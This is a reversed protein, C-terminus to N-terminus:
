NKLWTSWFIWLLAILSECFISIKLAWSTYEKWCITITGTAINKYHRRTRQRLVARSRLFLLTRRVASELGECREQGVEHNYFCLRPHWTGCAQPLVSIKHHDSFDNQRHRKKTTIKNWREKRGYLKLWIFQTAWYSLRCVHIWLGENNIASIYIYIKAPIVVSKIQSM